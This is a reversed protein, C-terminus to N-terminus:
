TESAALATRGADTIRWKSNKLQDTKKGV